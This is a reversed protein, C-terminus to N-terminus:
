QQPTTRPPIKRETVFRPGNSVITFPRRGYHLLHGKADYLHGKAVHFVAFPLYIHRNVEKVQIFDKKDKFELSFVLFVM